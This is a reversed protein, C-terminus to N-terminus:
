KPFYDTLDKDLRQTEQVNYTVGMELKWEMSNGLSHPTDLSTFTAGNSMVALKWEMSNGLSHPTALQEAGFLYAKAQLKWEM